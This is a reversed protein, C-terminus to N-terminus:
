VIRIVDKLANVIMMMFIIIEKKIQVYLLKKMLYYGEDNNCSDCNIVDGENNLIEKESCTKCGKYCKKILKDDKDLYENEKIDIICNNTGELLYLGKTNDCSLCKMYTENKSGENCTLCNPYCRDLTNKETDNVYYGDPIKDICETQSYNVYKNIFNCNLCNTNYLFYNENCEKCNHKNGENGKNCTKCSDYCKIFVMKAEDFYYGEPIERFCNSTNEIFYYGNKCTNCKQDNSTLGEENCTLCNEFCNVDVTFKFEITRGYFEDPAWDTPVTKGFMQGGVSCEKFEQYDAELLYPTIGLVYKGVPPTRGNIKTITINDNLTIISGKRLITNAKKVSFYLSNPTETVEMHVFVYCFLNNEIGKYFDKVKIIYSTYKDFLGYIIEPDTTNAYGFIIFGSSSINNHFYNM